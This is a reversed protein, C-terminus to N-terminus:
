FFFDIGCNLNMKIMLWFDMLMRLIHVPTVLDEEGSSHIKFCSRCCENRVLLIGSKEWNRMLIGQSKGIEHFEWVKVFKSFNGSKEPNRCIGPGSAM